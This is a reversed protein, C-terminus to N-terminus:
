LLMMIDLHISPRLTVLLLIGYHIMLHSHTLPYRGYRAARACRLTILYSIYTLACYEGSDIHICTNAKWITVYGFSVVTESASHQLLAAARRAEQDLHRQHGSYFMGYSLVDLSWSEWEITKNLCISVTTVLWQVSIQWLLAFIRGM